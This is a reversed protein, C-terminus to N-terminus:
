DFEGAANAAVEWGKGAAAAFLAQGCLDDPM